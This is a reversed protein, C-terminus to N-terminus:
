WADQLFLPRREKLRSQVAGDGTVGMEVEVDQLRHGIDDVDVAPIHDHCREGCRVVPVSIPSFNLSQLCQFPPSTETM